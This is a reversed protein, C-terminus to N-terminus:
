HTVLASIVVKAYKTDEQYKVHILEMSQKQESWLITKFLNEFSEHFIVVFM